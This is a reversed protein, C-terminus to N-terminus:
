QLNLKHLTGLKNAYKRIYTQSAVLWFLVINTPNALVMYIRLMYMVKSLSIVLYVTM